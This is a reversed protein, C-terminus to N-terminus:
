SIQLSKEVEELKEREKTFQKNEEKEIKTLIEKAKSIADKAEAKKGQALFIEALHRLANAEFYTNAADEHIIKIGKQISKAAQQLKAEKEKDSQAIEAQKKQIKGLGVISIGLQGSDNTGELTTVSQQLLEEARSIDEQALALSSRDRLTAGVLINDAMNRFEKEAQQLNKEAQAYQKTENDIVGIMHLCEAAIWTDGLSQAIERCQTYEDSAEDFKGADRKKQIDLFRKQLALEPAFKEEIKELDSKRLILQENHNISNKAQELCQYALLGRKYDKNSLIAEAVRMYGGSSWVAQEYPNLKATADPTNQYNQLREIAELTKRLPDKGNNPKQGMKYELTHLKAEIEEHYPPPQHPPLPNKAAIQYSHLADSFRDTREFISGLLVHPIPLASPMGAQEAYAVGQKAKEEAHKAYDTKKPDENKAETYLRWHIRGQQTAAESALQLYGEKVALIEAQHAYELGSAFNGEHELANVAQALLKQVESEYVSKKEPENNM